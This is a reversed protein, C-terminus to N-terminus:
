NVFKSRSFPPELCYLTNDEVENTMEPRDPKCQYLKRILDNYVWELNDLEELLTLTDAIVEAAQTYDSNKSLRDYEKKSIVDIMQCTRSEAKDAAFLKIGKDFNEQSLNDLDKCLERIKGLLKKSIM